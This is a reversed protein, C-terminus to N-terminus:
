LAEPGKSRLGEVRLLISQAGQRRYMVIEVSMYAYLAWGLQGDTNVSTPLGIQLHAQLIRLLERWNIKRLLAPLRPQGKAEVLNSWHGSAM